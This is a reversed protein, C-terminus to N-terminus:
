TFGALVHQPFLASLTSAVLDPGLCWLGQRAGTSSVLGLSSGAPVQGTGPRTCTGTGPPGELSPLAWCYSEEPVPASESICLM